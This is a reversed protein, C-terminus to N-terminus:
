EPKVEKILTAKASEISNFKRGNIIVYDKKRKEIVEEPSFRIYSSILDKMVFYHKNYIYANEEVHEYLDDLTSTAISKPSYMWHGRMASMSYERRLIPANIPRDPLKFDKLVYPTAAANPDDTWFHVGTFVPDGEHNNVFVNRKNFPMTSARDEDKDFDWYIYGMVHRTSGETERTDEILGFKKEDAMTKATVVQTSSQFYTHTRHILDNKPMMANGKIYEAHWGTNAVVVESCPIAGAYIPNDPTEFSTFIEGHIKKFETFASEQDVYIKDNYVFVKNAVDSEVHSADLLSGDDFRGTYLVKKKPAHAIAGDVIENAAQHIDDYWHDGEGKYEYEYVADHELASEAAMRSAYNGSVYEFAHELHQDGPLSETAPPNITTGSSQDSNELLGRKVNENVKIKKTNWKGVTLPIAIVPTATATVALTSLLYKLKRKM